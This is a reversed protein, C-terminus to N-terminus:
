RSRRTLRSTRLPQSRAREGGTTVQTVRDLAVFGSSGAAEALEVLARFAERDHAATEIERVAGAKILTDAVLGIERGTPGMGLAGFAQPLLDSM